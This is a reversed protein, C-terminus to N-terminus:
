QIPYESNKDGAKRLLFKEVLARMDEETLHWIGKTSIAEYEDKGARIIYKLEHGDLTALLHYNGKYAAEVHAHTVDHGDM